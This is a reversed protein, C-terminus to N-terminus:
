EKFILEFDDDTIYWRGWCVLRKFCEYKSLNTAITGRWQQVAAEPFVAAIKDYIELSTLAKGRLVIAIMKKWSLKPDKKEKPKKTGRLRWFINDSGRIIEKKFLKQSKVLNQYVMFNTIEPDVLQIQNFIEGTSLSITAESKFCNLIMKLITKRRNAKPRSNQNSIPDHEEERSQSCEGGDQSESKDTSKLESRMQCFGDEISIVSDEIQLVCRIEHILNWIPKEYYFNSMGALKSCVDEIHIRRFQTSKVIHVVLCYLTHNPYEAVIKCEPFPCTYPQNIEIEVVKPETPSKVEESIIPNTYSILKWTTQGDKESVEFFSTKEATLWQVCISNNKESNMKKNDFSM